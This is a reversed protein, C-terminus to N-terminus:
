RGTYHAAYAVTAAINQDIDTGGFQIRVFRKCQQLNLALTQDTASTSIDDFTAAEGTGINYLASSPVTSFSGGSTTAHQVTVTTTNTGSARAAVNLFLNATVAENVDFESTNVTGAGSTTANANYISDMSINFLNAM